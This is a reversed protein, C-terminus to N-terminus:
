LLSIQVPLSTCCVWRVTDAGDISFIHPEREYRSLVDHKLAVQPSRTPPMHSSLPWAPGGPAGAMARRSPLLAHAGYSVMFPKTATARLM